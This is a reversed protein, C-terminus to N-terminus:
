TRGAAAIGATAARGAIEMWEKKKRIGLRTACEILCERYSQGKKGKCEKPCRNLGTARAHYMKLQEPYFGKPYSARKIVIFSGPKIHSPPDYVIARGIDMLPVGGM